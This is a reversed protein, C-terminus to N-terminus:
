RAVTTDIVINVKDGAIEYRYATPTVGLEKLAKTTSRAVLTDEPLVGARFAELSQPNVVNKLIVKNTPLAGHAKLAEALFHAGAGDPLNGKRIYELVVTGEKPISAHFWAKEDGPITAKISFEDSDLKLKPLEYRRLGISALEGDSMNELRETGGLAEIERENLLKNEGPALFMPKREPMYEGARGVMKLAYDGANQTEAIGDFYGRPIGAAELEPGTLGQGKIYEYLGQKIDAALDPAKKIAELSQDITKMVAADVHTAVTDAIKLAAEGSKTSGEPNVLAFAAHGIVHGKERDPLKNYYDNGQIVANGLAEVANVIAKNLAQPDKAMADLASGVTHFLPENIANPKSLFAAVSGDTLAKWGAAVGAKTEEKAQNMGEAVGILKDIESQIYQKYNEPNTANKAAAGLFDQLKETPTRVDRGEEYDMGLSFSKGKQLEQPKYDIVTGTDQASGNGPQKPDYLEFKQYGGNKKMQAIMDDTLAIMTASDRISMRYSETAQTWTAQKTNDTFQAATVAGEPAQTKQIQADLKREETESVTAARQNTVSIGTYIDNGYLGNLSFDLYDPQESTTRQQAPQFYDQVNRSLTQALTSHATDSASTRDDITQRTIEGM